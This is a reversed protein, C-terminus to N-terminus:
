FTAPTLNQQPAKARTRIATVAATDSSNALTIKATVYRLKFGGAISVERIQDATCEMFGGKEITTGSLTGSTVIQSANTGSADDAAWIDLLTIGNGTLEANCAAFGVSDFGQMDLWHHTTGDPTLYQASSSGPKHYYSQIAHRSGVTQTTVGSPGAM